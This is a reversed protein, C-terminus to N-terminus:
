LPLITRDKGEWVSCAKQTKKKWRAKYALAKSASAAEKPTHRQMAEV